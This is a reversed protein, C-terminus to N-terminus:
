QASEKGFILKNIDVLPEKKEEALIREIEPDFKAKKEEPLRDYKSALVKGLVKRDALSAKEFEKLAKEFPMKSVKYAHDDGIQVRKWLDNLDNESLRMDKKIAESTSPSIEGTKEKDEMAMKYYRDKAVKVAVKSSKDAGKGFWWYYFKGFVPVSQILESGKGDGASKIDKYAADIAKTPPLIQQILTAGIGDRKAKEVTYRSAGVTRWVNDIVHDELVVPRGFLVDKIVDAGTNMVVLAATLSVLSKIGEARQGPTKIKNYVENRYVDLMKTTYTKLMYFIRGNGGTLYKVPMESLAIPQIDAVENFVYLKTNETVEGNKFEELM